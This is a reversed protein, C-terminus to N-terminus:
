RPRLARVLVVIAGLGLLGGALWPWASRRAPQVEAPDSTTSSLDPPGSSSPTVPLDATGAVTRRIQAPLTVRLV